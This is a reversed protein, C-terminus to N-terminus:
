ESFMQDFEEQSVPLPEDQPADTKPPEPKKALQQGELYKQFIQAM